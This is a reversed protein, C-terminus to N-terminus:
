KRNYFISPHLRGINKEPLINDIKDTYDTNELSPIVVIEEGMEKM